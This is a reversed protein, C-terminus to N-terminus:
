GVKYIHVDSAKAFTDIFQTGGNTVPITRSEGIVTVQSAGINRITFTAAINIDAKANRTCAFIYFGNDFTGSGNHFIGKNYWHTCVDIGNQIVKLPTPFLYGAPEVTAFGMAFPSNIVRALNHILTHTAEIATRMTVNEGARITNFLGGRDDRLNAYSAYQGGRDMGSHDFIVFGRAGHIISAWIAWSYEEPRIFYSAHAADFPNGNEVIAIIPASYHMAQQARLIDIMDGYCSGREAMASTFNATGYITHGWGTPGNLYGWEAGSFFYIDMSIIDVHRLTGNPTPILDSYESALTAPAPGGALAVGAAQHSDGNVYWFRSDQEANETERIPRSVGALYQENGTRNSPEDWTLLGVDNATLKGEYGHGNCQRVASIGHATALAMNVTNVGWMTNWGVNNWLIADSATAYDSLFPGIPVFGPDDWGLLGRWRVNTASTFSPHGRDGCGYYDNSMTAADLMVEGDIAKLTVGEPLANMKMSPQGYATLPWAAVAGGFLAIFQRRKLALYTFKM